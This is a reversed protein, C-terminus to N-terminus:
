RNHYKIDIKIKAFYAIVALPICVSSATRSTEKAREAKRVPKKRVKVQM